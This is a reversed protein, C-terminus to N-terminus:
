KKKWPAGYTFLLQKAETKYRKAENARSLKRCIRYMLYYDEGDDHLAQKGCAYAQLFDKRAKQPKGTREYIIGEDYLDASLRPNIALAKDCAAKARHLNGNKLYAEGLATLNLAMNPMISQSQELFRIANTHEGQYLCCTGLMFFFVSKDAARLHGRGERQIETILHRAEDYKQITIDLTALSIQFQPVGPHLKLIEKGLEYAKLPQKDMKLALVYMYAIGANKHSNDYAIKMDPIAAAVRGQELYCSALGFHILPDTPFDAAGKKLIVIDASLQSKLKSAKGTKLALVVQRAIDQPTPSGTPAAAKVHQVPIILALILVCVIRKM